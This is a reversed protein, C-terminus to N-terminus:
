RYAYRRANRREQELQYQAARRELDARLRQAEEQEERVRRVAADSQLRALLAPTIVYNYMYAPPRDSDDADDDLANIQDALGIYGLRTEILDLIHGRITDKKMDYGWNSALREHIIYDRDFLADSSSNRYSERLNEVYRRMSTVINELKTSIQEINGEVNDSLAIIEDIKASETRVIREKFIQVSNNRAEVRADNGLSRLGRDFLEKYSTKNASGKNFKRIVLTTREPSRQPTRVLDAYYKFSSYRDGTDIYPLASVPYILLAAEIISNTVEDYLKQTRSYSSYHERIYRNGWEDHGAAIAAEHHFAAIVDNLALVDRALQKKQEMTYETNAVVQPIIRDLAQTFRDRWEWNPTDNNFLKRHLESKTMAPTYNEAILANSSFIFFSLILLHLKRTM